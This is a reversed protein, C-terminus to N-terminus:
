WDEKPWDWKAVIDDDGVPLPNKEGMERQFEGCTCGLHPLQEKPCACGGPRLDSVFMHNTETPKPPHGRYLCYRVISSQGTVGGFNAEWSDVVIVDGPQLQVHPKYPHCGGAQNRIVTATDGKKYVHDAM